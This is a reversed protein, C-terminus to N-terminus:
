GLQRSSKLSVTRRSETKMASDHEILNGTLLYYGDDSHTRGPGRVITGQFSYWIGHIQRTTFKLDQGLLSTQDFFFTLPTGSDSEGDGQRSVYGSLGGFQMTIQILEGPHGLMYEGSADEPIVSNARAQRVVIPHDTTSPDGRHHLAPQTASQANALPPSLLLMVIVVSHWKQPKM